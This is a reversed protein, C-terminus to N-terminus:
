YQYNPMSVQQLFLLGDFKKALEMTNKKRLNIFTDNVIIPQFLWATSKKNKSPISLFHAYGDLQNILHKIDLQSSDPASLEKKNRTNGAFVGKGAFVGITYIDKDLKEKLVEGMVLLDENYTSIHFNHALIIIKKNPYINQTLWLINNAMAVDRAAWAKNWDRDLAFDLKYALYSARNGLTKAVLQITPTPADVQNLKQELSQYAAILQRISQQTSDALTKQKLQKKAKTYRLELNYYATSDALHMQAIKKLLPAFSSGSRQVDFGAIELNEQKVYTMLETFAATKWPGMLGKQVLQQPSLQQKNTNVEILEGMGSEFLIVEFGLAEHLYKILSNKLQFVEKAGHTFEGIAVVDKNKLQQHIHSWQTDHFQNDTDLQVVKKALFRKQAKTLNQAFTCTSVLLFFIFLLQKM